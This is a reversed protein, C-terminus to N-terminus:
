RENHATKIYKLSLITRMLLSTNTILGVIKYVLGLARGNNDENYMYICSYIYFAFPTDAKKIYMRFHVLSLRKPACLGRRSPRVYESSLHFGDPAIYM